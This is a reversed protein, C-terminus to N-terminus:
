VAIVKLRPADAARLGAGSWEVFRLQFEFLEEFFLQYRVWLRVGGGHSGGGRSGVPDAGLLTHEIDVSGLAVSALSATRSAILLAPKDPRIWPPQQWAELVLDQEELEDYSGFWFVGRGGM